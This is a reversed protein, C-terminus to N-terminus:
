VIQMVAIFIKLVHYTLLMKFIYCRKFKNRTKNPDFVRSIFPTGHLRGAARSSLKDRHGRRLLSVEEQKRKLVQLLLIYDFDRGSDAFYSNSSCNVFSTWVQEKLKTEAELTRIINANKRSEKRLQAM